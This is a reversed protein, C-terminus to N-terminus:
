CRHVCHKMLCHALLKALILMQYSITKKPALSRTSDILFSSTCNSSGLAVILVRVEAPLNTGLCTGLCTGMIM